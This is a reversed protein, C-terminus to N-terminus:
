EIRARNLFQAVPPAFLSSFWDIMEATCFDAAHDLVAMKTVYSSPPPKKSWM